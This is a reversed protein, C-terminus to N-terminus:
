PCVGPRSRHGQLRSGQIRELLRLMALTDQGCYARLAKEVRKREDDNLGGRLLSEWAIGAAQGNAVEMGDYTMEPALAPLVSKISYSGAYAPHYTHERVIPLLDVLRAQIANIRDAFEPFWEALEALRQYEFSSYM